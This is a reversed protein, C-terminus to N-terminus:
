GVPASFVERTGRRSSVNRVRALALLSTGVPLAGRALLAREPSLVGLMVRDLAPISKMEFLAAAGEASAPRPRRIADRAGRVAKMSLAAFFLPGFFHTMWRVELGAADLVSSLSARTYRRRHKEADDWASWLFSFAPVTVVVLKEPGIATAVRRLAGVDDDLHEIVDLLLAGDHDLPPLDETLDVAFFRRRDAAEGLAARAGAECLRLAEPFLEAYDVVYGHQNLHTAVTGVGAGLDVLRGITGPPAHRRLVDLLVARRHVHWYHTPEVRARVAHESSDFTDATTRTGEDPSAEQSTTSM